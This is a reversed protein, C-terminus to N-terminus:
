LLPICPLPRHPQHVLLGDIHRVNHPIASEKRAVKNLVNNVDVNLRDFYYALQGFWRRAKDYLATM